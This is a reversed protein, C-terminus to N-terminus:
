KIAMVDAHVNFLYSGVFRVEKQNKAEKAACDENKEHKRQQKNPHVSAMQGETMVRRM